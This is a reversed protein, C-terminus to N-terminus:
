LLKTFLCKVDQWKWRVQIFLFHLHGFKLRVISGTAILKCM